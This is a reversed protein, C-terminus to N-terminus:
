RIASTHTHHAKSFVEIVESRDHTIDSVDTYTLILLQNRDATKIAPFYLYALIGATDVMITCYFVTM